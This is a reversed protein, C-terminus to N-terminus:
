TVSKLGRTPLTIKAWVMPPNHTIVGWFFAMEEGQLFLTSHSVNLIIYIYIFISFSVMLKFSVLQTYNYTLFELHLKVVLYAWFYHM